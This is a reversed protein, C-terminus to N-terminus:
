NVPNMAECVTPETTTPAATVTRGRSTLMRHVCGPPPSGFRRSPIRLFRARRCAALHGGFRPPGALWGFGFVSNFQIGFTEGLLSRKLKACADQLDKRKQRSRNFSKADPDHLIRLHGLDVIAPLM